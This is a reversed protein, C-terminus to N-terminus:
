LLEVAYLRLDHKYLKKFVYSYIHHPDYTLYMNIMHSQGHLFWGLECQFQFQNKLGLKYSCVNAVQM